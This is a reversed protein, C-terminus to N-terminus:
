WAEMCAGVVAAGVGVAHVRGSGSSGGSTTNTTHTTTTLSGKTVTTTKKGKKIELGSDGGDDTRMPMAATIVLNSFESLTAIYEPTISAIAPITLRASYFM